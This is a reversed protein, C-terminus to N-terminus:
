LLDHCQSGAKFRGCLHECIPMVKDKSTDLWVVFKVQKIIAEVVREESDCDNTKVCGVEDETLVQFSFSGLFCEEVNSLLFLSLNM